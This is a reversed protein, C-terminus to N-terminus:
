VKVWGKYLSVLLAMGLVSRYLAFVWLNAEHLFTIVLVLIVLSTFFSFLFGLLNKCSILVKPEGLEKKQKPLRKINQFLEYVFSIFIIPVSLIISFYIAEDFNVKLFGFTALLIGLRSVGGLLAFAQALGLVFIEWFGLQAFHIRESNLSFCIWLLFSFVLFLITNLFFNQNIKKIGDHFLYGCALCPLSIFIIKVFTLGLFEQYSFSHALGFNCIFYFFEKSIQMLDKWFLLLVACLSGFHLLCSTPLNIEPLKFILGCLRLHFSSSVPLFETLGQVFGLVAHNVFSDKALKM